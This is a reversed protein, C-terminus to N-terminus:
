DGVEFDDAPGTEAQEASRRAARAKEARDRAARLGAAGEPDLDDPAAQEAEAAAAEAQERALKEEAAQKRAAAVAWQREKEKLAAIDIGFYAGLIERSIPAAATSGHSGHEVVVAVAIEPAQAPAYSVFLGHDRHKYKIEEEDLGEEDEEKMRIVQATGTKGAVKIEPLRSAWGTGHPESVVAELGAKLPALEEETLHTEGLQEPQQQLIVEGSFDEVKDIV